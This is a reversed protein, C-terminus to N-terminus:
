GKEDVLITNKYGLRTITNLLPVPFRIEGLLVVQLMLPCQPKVVGFATLFRAGPPLRQPGDVCKACHFVEPPSPQGGGHCRSM